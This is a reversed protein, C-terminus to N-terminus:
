FASARDEQAVPARFPTMESFRVANPEGNHFRTFVAYVGPM